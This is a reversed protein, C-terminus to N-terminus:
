FHRAIRCPLDSIRCPGILLCGQCIGCGSSMQLIMYCGMQLRGAGRGNWQVRGEAVGLAQGNCIRLAPRLLLVWKKREGEPGGM